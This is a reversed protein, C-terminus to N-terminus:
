AKAASPTRWESLARHSSGCRSHTTSIRSSSSDRWDTISGTVRTSCNPSQRRHLSSTAPRATPSGNTSTRRSTLGRRLEEESMRYAKAAATSVDEQSLVPWGLKTHLLEALQTGGSCIGRSITIIPM